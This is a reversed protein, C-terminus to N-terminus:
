MGRPGRFHEADQKSVEMWITRLRWQARDVRGRTDEAGSAIRRVKLSSEDHFLQSVSGEM